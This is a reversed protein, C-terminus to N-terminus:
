EEEASDAKTFVPDDLLPLLGSVDVGGNRAKEWHDRARRPDSESKALHYSGLYLDNAPNTDFWKQVIALVIGSPIKDRAYEKREGTTRFVLRNADSEVIAIKKGKFDYEDGSKV